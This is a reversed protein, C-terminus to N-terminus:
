DLLTEHRILKRRGLSITRLTPADSVRGNILNSVHARSCRLTKAVEVLALVGNSEGSALRSATTAHM